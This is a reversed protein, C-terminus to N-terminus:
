YVVMVPVKSNRVVKDTVSGLLFKSLGTKGVSGMVVLDMGEATKLIVEAPNGELIKKEAPVEAMKAAEEVYRTAAEGEEEMARKFGMLIEDAINASVDSLARNPDVVYIATVKGGALKAMDVAKKAAKKSHESGDTAILIREFM